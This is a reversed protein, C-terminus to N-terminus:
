LAKAPAAAAGTYERGALERLSIGRNIDMGTFHWAHAHLRVPGLVREDFQSPLVFAGRREYDLFTVDVHAGKTTEYGELTIHVRYTLDTDPDIWLVVEDRPSFGLGPEIVTYLRYYRKDGAKADELRVFSDRNDFLALPGLTFLFFSDATLATSQLVDEDSSEEGDYFVSVSNPTRLVKKTGAPGSYHAAYVGQAPLLREQSTVRYKHDTVLPQIRTILFEWDGDLAVSLDKLEELNKGGHAEFTRTFIESASPASGDHPFADPRPFVQACGTVLFLPILTTTLRAGFHALAKM